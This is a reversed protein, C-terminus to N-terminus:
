IIYYLLGAVLLSLGVIASAYRIHLTKVHHTEHDDMDSIIAEITENMMMRNNTEHAELLCDSVHFVYDFAQMVLDVLTESDKAHPNVQSCFEEVATYEDATACILDQDDGMKELIQEYSDQPLIVFVAEKLEMKIGSHTQAQRLYTLIDVIALM